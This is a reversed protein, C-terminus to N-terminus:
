AAETPETPLNSKNFFDVKTVTLQAMDGNRLTSTIDTFSEEEDIEGLSVCPFIGVFYELQKDFHPPRKGSYLWLGMCDRAIWLTVNM